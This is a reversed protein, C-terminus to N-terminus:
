SFDFIPKLLTFVVFWEFRNPMIPPFNTEVKKLNPKMGAKRLALRPTAGILKAM